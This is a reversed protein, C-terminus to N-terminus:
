MYSRINQRIGEPLFTRDPGWASGVTAADRRSRLYREGAIRSMQATTDYGHVVEILYDLGHSRDGHLTDIVEQTNEPIRLAVPRIDDDVDHLDNEELVYEMEGWQGRYDNHWLTRGISPFIAEIFPFPGPSGDSEIFEGTINDEIESLDSTVIGTTNTLERIDTMPRTVWSDDEEDLTQKYRNMWPMPIIRIYVDVEDLEGAAELQDHLQAIENFRHANEETLINRFRVGGRQKKRRTRKRRPM